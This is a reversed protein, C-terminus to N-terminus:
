PPDDTAAAPAARLWYGRGRASEIVLDHVGRASLHRRLRSIYVDISRRELDPPSPLARALRERSVVLGGAELLCQMLATQQETLAIALDDRFLRNGLRDLQWGAATTAVPERAGIASAGDIGVRRRTLALLRARLLRADAERPVYADAGLELAIIEDVSAARDGVLLLPCPVLLRLELLAAVPMAGLARSDVVLADLLAQRATTIAEAHTPLWFSRLPGGALLQRLSWETTADPSVVAVVGTARRRPAPTLREREDAFPGIHM